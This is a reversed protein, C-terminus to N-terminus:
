KKKKQMGLCVAVCYHRQLYDTLLRTAIGIGAESDLLKATIDM